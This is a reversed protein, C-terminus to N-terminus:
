GNFTIGFWKDRFIMQNRNRARFYNWDEQGYPSEPGRAEQFQSKLNAEKLYNADVQRLPSKLDKGKPHNGTRRTSISKMDACSTTRDAKKLPKQGGKYHNSGHCLHETKETWKRLPYDGTLHNGTRVSLPLEIMRWYNRGHGRLLELGDKTIELGQRKSYNQDARGYPLETWRLPLGIRKGKFTFEADVKSGLLLKSGYVSLLELDM